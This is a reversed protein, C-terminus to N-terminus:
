LCHDGPLVLSPWGPYSSAESRIDTHFVPSSFRHCVTSTCGQRSVFPSRPCVPRVRLIKELLLPFYTYRGDTGLREPRKGLNERMVIM